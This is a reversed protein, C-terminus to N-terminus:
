RAVPVDEEAAVSKAGERAAEAQALRRDVNDSDLNQFFADVYDFENLLKHCENAKKAYGEYLKFHDEM